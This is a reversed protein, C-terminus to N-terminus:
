APENSVEAVTTALFAINDLQEYIDRKVTRLRQRPMLTFEPSADVETFTLNLETMRQIDKGFTDPNRNPIHVIGIIKQQGDKYIKFDQFSKNGDKVEGKHDNLWM